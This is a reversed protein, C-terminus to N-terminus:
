LPPTQSSHLSFPAWTSSPEPAEPTKEAYTQPSTSTPAPKRRKQQDQKLLRWQEKWVHGRPVLLSGDLVSLRHVDLTLGVLASTQDDPKPHRVSGPHFEDRREAVAHFLLVAVDGRQEGVPLDLTVLHGQPREAPLAVAAQVAARHQELPSFEPKPRQGAQNSTLECVRAQLSCSLLVQVWGAEGGGEESVTWCFGATALVVGLGWGAM